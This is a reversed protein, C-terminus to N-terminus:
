GLKEGMCSFSFVNQKITFLNCMIGEFYTGLCFIYFKGTYGQSYHVKKLPDIWRHNNPKLESDNQRQRTKILVMKLAHASAWLWSTITM